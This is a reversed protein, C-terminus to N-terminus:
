CDLNIQHVSELQHVASEKLSQFHAKDFQAGQDILMLLEDYKEVVVKLLSEKIVFDLEDNAQMMLQNISKYQEKFVADFDIKEKKKKSLLGMFEM